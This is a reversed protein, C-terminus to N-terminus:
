MYVLYVDSISTYNGFVMGLIHFSLIQISGERQSKIKLIKPNGEPKYFLIIKASDQKRLINNIQCIVV